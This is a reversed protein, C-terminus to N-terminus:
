RMKLDEESATDSTETYRGVMSYVMSTIYLRKMQVVWGWAMM